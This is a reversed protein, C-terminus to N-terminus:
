DPLADWELLAEYLGPATALALLEARSVWRAEAADDGAELVGGVLESM